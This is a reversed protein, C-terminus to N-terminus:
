QASVCINIQNLIKLAANVFAFKKPAFRNLEAFYSCWGKQRPRGLRRLCFLTIEKHETGCSCLPWISPSFALCNNQSVFTQIEFSKLAYSQYKFHKINNNQFYSGNIKKSHSCHDTAHVIFM